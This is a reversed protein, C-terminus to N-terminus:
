GRPGGEIRRSRSTEGAYRGECSNEHKPPDITIVEHHFERDLQDSWESSDHNDLVKLPPEKLRSRLIKLYWSPHKTRTPCKSTFHIGLLRSALIRAQSDKTVYKAVYSFHHPRAIKFQSFGHKWKAKLKRETIQSSCFILCHMHRRGNTSGLEQVAFYRFGDPGSAAIEASYTKRFMKMYKQWSSSWHDQSMSSRATLTGFWVRPHHYMEETLRYKWQYAKYRKCPTCRMCRWKLHVNICQLPNFM